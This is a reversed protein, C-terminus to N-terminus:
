SDVIDAVRVTKGLDLDVLPMDGIVRIRERGALYTLKGTPDRSERYKSEVYAREPSLEPFGGLRDRRVFYANNGASNSGVLAYGKKNAQQALARLSCGWYLQSFHAIARRFDPDYPVTVAHKWGFLSNYEAVVIVPQVCQIREWVWYDNGDVDISLIGIEGSFGNDAILGDINSTTIFACIATLDHRWYWPRSRIHAVNRASGDIVLGRWNDKILLFRTNSEEYDSVGFEVFTHLNAPLDTKHILYQLIGDDGFQSFVKFEVAILGLLPSTDKLQNTLYRGLLVKSDEVEALIRDIGVYRSLRSFLARVLRKVRKEEVRSASRRLEVPAHFGNASDREDEVM